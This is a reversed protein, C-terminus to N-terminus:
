FSSIYNMIGRYSEKEVLQGTVKDTKWQRCVAWYRGCGGYKDGTILEGSEKAHSYLIKVGCNINHVPDFLMSQTKTQCDYRKQNSSEISIQLLGSSIVGALSGSEAYTANTNYSSEYKMMISLLQAACDSTNIKKCPSKIGSWDKTKVAALLTSAWLPESKKPYWSFYYYPRTVGDVEIYGFKKGPIPNNIINQLYPDLRPPETVVPPTTTTPETPLYPRPNGSAESENAAETREKGPGFSCGAFLMAVSLLILTWKM